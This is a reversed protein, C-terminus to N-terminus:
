QNFKVFMKFEQVKTSVMRILLLGAGTGLYSSPVNMSTMSSHITTDSQKIAM